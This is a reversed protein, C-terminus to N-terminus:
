RCSYVFRGVPKTVIRLDIEELRKSICEGIVPDGTDFFSLGASVDFVFHHVLSDNCPTIRKSLLFRLAHCDFNKRRLKACALTSAFASCAM